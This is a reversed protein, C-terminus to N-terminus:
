DALTEAAALLARDTPVAAVATARWGTGSAALVAPSLAAVAIEAPAVAHRALTRAARPSHLLVLGARLRAQADVPIPLTDSAYVTIARVGPQDIRDRGALHLLRALGNTRAEAVADAADADGTITVALGAARAAEATATGVAVVPLRSLGALGPGAHRVANASTLLLADVGAPDPPTWAVPSVAFLPLPDVTWGAARALAVTGGNGPEPRLVVLHRSM